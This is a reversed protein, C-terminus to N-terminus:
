VQDFVHPTYVVMNGTGSGTNTPLHGDETFYGSQASGLDRWETVRTTTTVSQVGGIFYIGEILKSTGIVAPLSRGLAQQARDKDTKATVVPPGVFTETSGQPRIFAWPDTNKGLDLLSVM